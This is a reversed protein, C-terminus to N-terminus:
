QTFRKNVVDRAQELKEILEALAAAQGQLSAVESADRCRELHDRCEEREAKLLAVLRRGEPSEAVRSLAKWDLEEM